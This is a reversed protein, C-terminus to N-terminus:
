FKGINRHLCSISRCEHPSSALAISLFTKSGTVATVTLLRKDIESFKL